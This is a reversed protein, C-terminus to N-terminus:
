EGRYFSKKLLEIYTKAEAFAGEVDLHAHGPPGTMRSNAFGEFTWVIVNVAMSVDVGPKFKSADVSDILKETNVKLLERNRGDLEAKVEASDEKYASMLFDYIKPFKNIMELKIRQAALIRAFLDKEGPDTRTRIADIFVGLSYDYVYLFLQKKSKFYHFLAGKAIGAYDVIANTSAGDYGMAAFEQMAANLIRQRKEEPLNEFKSYLCVGRPEQHLSNYCRQGSLDIHM